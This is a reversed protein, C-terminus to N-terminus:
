LPASSFEMMGGWLNLRTLEKIAAGMGERDCSTQLHSPQQKVAGALEESLIRMVPNPIYHM